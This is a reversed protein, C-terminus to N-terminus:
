VYRVMYFSSILILMVTAAIVVFQRDHDKSFIFIQLFVRGFPSLLLILIGLQIIAFSKLSLVGQIICPMTYPFMASSCTSSLHLIINYNGYGTDGTVLDTVIGITVIGVSIIVSWILYQSLIFSSLSEERRRM